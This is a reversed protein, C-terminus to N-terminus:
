FERLVELKKSEYEEDTVVGEEHLEKLVRLREAVSRDAPQEGSGARGDTIDSTEAPLAPGREPKFAGQKSTLYTRVHRDDLIEAVAKTVCFNCARQLDSGSVDCVRFAREFEDGTTASFSVCCKYAWYAYFFNQYTDTVEVSIVAAADDTVSAGRRSLEESLFDVVAGTWATLAENSRQTNEITIPQDVQYDSVMGPKMPLATPTVACGLLSASFLLIVTHRTVTTAEVTTRDRALEVDAKRLEALIQEGRGDTIDSTETPLAPGREPKFAGQEALQGFLHDALREYTRTM